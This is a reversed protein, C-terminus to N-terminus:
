VRISKKVTQLWDFLAGYCWLRIDRQLRPKCWRYDTQDGVPVM